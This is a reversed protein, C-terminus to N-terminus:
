FHRYGKPELITVGHPTTLEIIGVNVTIQGIRSINLSNLQSINKVPVTFLLEFDEGGDFAMNLIQERSFHNDLDTNCPISEEDIRAGVGSSRCIHGLDSSLGDSLDIMSNVIGMDQLLKATILQPQPKLQKLALNIDKQSSLDHIRHGSELFELGGAAGGLDGTVFIVDGVKATSRLIANGKGVEGGVTSDIVLKGDTRSIDGGILEVGYRKALAFWGYYFRDIFDSNWLVQPVGISIMSWKPDGGMAAIDSLSVALSKHGLFEPTTWDLRFDIDEILMDATVLLDTEADQPMVACDDGIRSLSYKSKLNQIFEFETRM